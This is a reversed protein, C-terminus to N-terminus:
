FRDEMAQLDSKALNTSRGGPVQQAFLEIGHDLLRCMATLDQRDVYVFSLMEKRGVSFHLGGINIEALPAGLRALEAMEGPSATLLIVREGHHEEKAMRAATEAITLVSVAIEPPVSSAYVRSQWPDAAVANNALIIRDPQLQQSWGVTVQGHIMRDDVRALIIPM